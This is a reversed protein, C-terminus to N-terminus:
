TEIPSSRGPARPQPPDPLRPIVIDGDPTMRPAGYRPIRDLMLEFARRLREFGERALEGVDEQGKPPPADARAPLPGALVAISLAAAALTRYM